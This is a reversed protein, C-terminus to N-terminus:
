PAGRATAPRGDAAAAVVDPHWVTTDVFNPLHRLKAVPFGWEAYKDAYFRSPCLFNGVWWRHGNQRELVQTGRFVFIKGVTQRFLYRAPERLQM